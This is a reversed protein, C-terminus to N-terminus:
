GANYVIEPGRLTKVFGPLAAKESAVISDILEAGKEVCSGDHSISFKMMLNRLTRAKAEIETYATCVEEAGAFLRQDMFYDFRMKMCKKHEWFLHFPRIDYKEPQSILSLAYNKLATGSNVGYNFRKDHFYPDPPTNEPLTNASHLYDSLLLKLLSCNVETHFDKDRIPRYVRFPINDSATYISSLLEKEGVETQNLHMTEDYGSIYFVRRDTDCGYILLQHNFDYKHYARRHPIHYMNVDTEIYYEDCIFNILFTTPDSRYLDNIHHLQTIHFDWPIAYNEPFLINYSNPGTIFCTQIYNSYFWPWYAPNTLAASLPLALHQFGNYPPSVLRLIKKPMVIM